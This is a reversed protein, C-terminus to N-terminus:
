PNLYEGSFDDIWGTTLTLLIGIDLIFCSYDSFDAFTTPVFIDHRHDIMTPEVVIVVEKIHFYTHQIKFVEKVPIKLGDQPYRMIEVGFARGFLQFTQSKPPYESLDCTSEVEEMADSFKM